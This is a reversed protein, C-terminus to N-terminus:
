NYSLKKIIFGMFDSHIECDINEVLTTTTVFKCQQIHVSKIMGEYQGKKLQYAFHISCTNTIM